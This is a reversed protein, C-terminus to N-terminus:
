EAHKSNDADGSGDPEPQLEIVWTSITEIPGGDKGSLEVGQAPKGEVRDMIERYAITDGTSLAVQIQRLHLAEALSLNSQEKSIPHEAFIEMALLKKLITRAQKYGPKPGKPNGSQGPEWVFLTGGNKGKRTKM